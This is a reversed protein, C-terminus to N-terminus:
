YMESFYVINVENALVHFSVPRPSPQSICEIGVFTRVKNFCELSHLSRRQRKTLTLGFLLTCYLM